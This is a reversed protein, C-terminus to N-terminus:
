EEKYYFIESFLDPYTYDDFSFYGKKCERCIYAELKGGYSSFSYDSLVIGGVNEISKSSMSFPHKGIPYWVVSTGSKNSPIYGLEM